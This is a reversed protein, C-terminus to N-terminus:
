ESAEASRLEPHGRRRRTVFADTVLLVVGLALAGGSAITAIGRWCGHSRSQSESVCRVTGSALVPAVDTPASGDRSEAATSRTTPPRRAAVAATAAPNPAAPAAGAFPNRFSAQDQAAAAVGGLQVDLVGAGESIELGVNVLTDVNDGINDILERLNACNTGESGIKRLLSELAIVSGVGPGFVKREPASGSFRVILPGIAVSGTHDNTSLAPRLLSLGLPALVKNIAAITSGQAADPAALHRGAITVDGFSFRTARKTTVGSSRSASWRMGDLRVLGGLLTVTETVSSSAAQEVGPVYHVGARSRGRVSVVGPISENITTTTASASEPQPAVAVQETGVGGGGRTLQKAGDESDAALPQPQASMPLDPHGCLQSTALVLGLSGLDVTASKAQTESHQFAASSEGVTTTLTLGAVGPTVGLVDATAAAMGPPIPHSHHAASAQGAPEVVTLVLAGVPILVYGALRRLGIM